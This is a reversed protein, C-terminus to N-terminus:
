VFLSRNIPQHTNGIYIGKEHIWDANTLDGHIEHNYWKISPSKTFNGAVIPRYEINKSDFEKKIEEIDDNVIAFSFWSSKGIEKQMWWGRSDCIEKWILANERRKEIFGDIKYMQQVGVAGMMEIPRVNYGPYLFEYSSVKAKLVNDKPLHRTWGHSRLCLLMQYFYDDDTTIVGGEMTQIHHSFFMSHSSMFGFNGTKMDAYEAGMSECNDELVQMSPFKSFDNPNGLLNVALILEKGTYASKLSKLDYNLTDKDIDVFKLKWGYQHFPAYSTAWSVAPVIVTGAGEQRLSYAAVMLLNASSGSNVMVAYKSKCWDSYLAEFDSVKEGMTYKGSNIVEILAQKEEEGWTPVSLPHNNLPLTKEPEKILEDNLMAQYLVDKFVLKEEKM